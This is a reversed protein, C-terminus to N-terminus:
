ETSRRTAGRGLRVLEVLDFLGVRSEIETHPSSLRVWVSDGPNLSMTDAVSLYTWVTDTTAVHKERLTRLDSSSGTLLSISGGGETGVARVYASLRVIDGDGLDPVPTTVFGRTPAWDAELRLAYQGGGPAAEQIIEALQSDAPLWGDLMPTGQSEFSGNALLNENGMPRVAKESCGWVCFGTFVLILRVHRM